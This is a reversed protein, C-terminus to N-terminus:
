SQSKIFHFEVSKPTGGVTRWTTTVTVHKFGRSHDDVTWSIQNTRGDTALNSPGATVINDFDDIIFQEIREATWAMSDMSFRGSTNNRVAHIQMAAVGLLGIAFISMAVLIEILTFGAASKESRVKTPLQKCSITMM